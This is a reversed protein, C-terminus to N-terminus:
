INEKWFIINLITFFTQKFGNTLIKKIVNLHFNFGSTKCLSEKKTKEIHMDKSEKLNKCKIGMSIFEPFM